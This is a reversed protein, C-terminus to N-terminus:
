WRFIDGLLYFTNPHNSDKSHMPCKSAYMHPERSHFGLGLGVEEVYRGIEEVGFHWTGEVVNHTDMRSVRQCIEHIKEM